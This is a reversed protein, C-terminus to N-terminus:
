LNKIDFLNLIKKVKEYVCMSSLGTNLIECKRRQNEGCGWKQVERGEGGGLYGGIFLAGALCRRRLLLWHLERM